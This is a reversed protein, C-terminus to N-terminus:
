VRFDMVYPDYKSGTGQKIPSNAKITIVPRIARMSDVDSLGKTGFQDIMVAKGPSYISMTYYNDMDYLYSRYRGNIGHGIFLIDNLSLLAAKDDIINSCMNDVTGRDYKEKNIDMIENCYGSVIYDDYKSVNAEYWELVKSRIESTEYDYNNVDSSYVSRGINDNTGNCEGDVYDGNYLLKVNGESDTLVAYYCTNDIVVNNDIEGGRFFYMDNVTYVGMDNGTVQGSFNLSSIDSQVDHILHRNLSIKRDVGTGLDQVYNISFEYNLEVEEGNLDDSDIDTRYAVRVFLTDKEKSLIRDGIGLEMGDDYRVDYSVVSSNSGIDGILYSSVIADLTGKNSVDVSFEFYDGPKDLNASFSIGTDDVINAEGSVSGDYVVINDFIINWENKSLRGSGGISLKTTLMAYVVSVGLLLLILLLWRKRNKM